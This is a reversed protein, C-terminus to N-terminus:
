ALVPNEFFESISLYAKFIYFNRNKVNTNYSLIARRCLAKGAIKNTLYINERINKM